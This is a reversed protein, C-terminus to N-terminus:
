FNSILHGATEREGMNIGQIKTEHLTLSKKFSTAAGTSPLVKPKQGDKSRQSFLFKNNIFHQQIVFPETMQYFLMLQLCAGKGRGKCEQVFPFATWVSQSQAERCLCSGTETVSSSSQLSPPFVEQLSFYEKPRCESFTDCMWKSDRCYIRLM